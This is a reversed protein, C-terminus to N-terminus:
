KKDIKLNLLILTRVLEEHSYLQPFNGKFLAAQQPTLKPTETNEKFKNRYKYFLSMKKIFKLFEKFNKYAFILDFFARFVVNRPPKPQDEASIAHECFLGLNTALKLSREIIREAKQIEGRIIYIRALWFTVLPFPATEFINRAVLDEYVLEKEIRKIMNVIYFSNIDLMGSLPLALTSTDTIPVGYGLTFAKMRQNWGNSLIDKMILKSEDNWKKVKDIYGLIKGIKAARDLATWCMVKSHTYHGIVGRLEWIGNDEDRWHNVVYNCVREIKSWYKELLATSKTKRYLVWLCDLVEGELDNQIQEAALNGIRVPGDGMFGKLHSLIKESCDPDGNIRYLPQWPKNVINCSNNDIHNEDNDNMVLFCFDLFAEAEKYYGAEAFASAGYSGDRIWCFRYDWNSGSAPHQPISTTAAAIIAGTPEYTLLKMTILSRRFEERHVGKYNSISLWDHWFKIENQLPDGSNPMNSKAEINFNNKSKISEYEAYKLVFELSNTNKPKIEFTLEANRQPKIDKIENEIKSTDLILQIEQKQNKNISSEAVFTKITGNSYMHWNHESLRYNFTPQLYLELVLNPQFIEINRHIEPVGWPMFDKISFILNDEKDFAKTELIATDKIYEQKWKDIDFNKATISWFGSDEDIL